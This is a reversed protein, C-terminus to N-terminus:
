KEKVNTISSLANCICDLLGLVDQLSKDHQKRPKIPQITIGIFVKFESLETEILRVHNMIDIASIARKNYSMTIQRTGFMGARRKVALVLDLTEKAKEIVDKPRM